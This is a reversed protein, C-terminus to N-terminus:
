HRSLITDLVAPAHAAFSAQSALQGFRELQYQVTRQYTTEDQLRQINDFAKALDGCEFLCDPHLYDLVGPLRTAVMPRALAMSELMVLPVGEYRSTLLTCDCSQLEQVPDAWAKLKMIHHLSPHEVLARELTAKYPGDGVIHVVQQRSRLLDINAILYALLMDLGKHKADIRCMVLINFCGTHKRIEAQAHQSADEILKSVTNPLIVIPQEVQAWTKFVQAQGQSLTVWHTPLHRYVKMFRSTAGDADPYGLHQYTDVIPVYLAVKSFWPKVSMLGLPESMLSGEAVIVVKAGTALRAQLALSSLKLWGLLKQLARSKIIAKPPWSVPRVELGDSQAHECLRSAENCMLVPTFQHGAQLEQMWRRLMIEHGGFNPSLSVFLVPQKHSM